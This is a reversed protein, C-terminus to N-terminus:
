QLRSLEWKQFINGSCLCEVACSILICPSVTLSHANMCISHASLTYLCASNQMHLGQLCLTCAHICQICIHIRQICIHLCQICMSMAYTFVNCPCVIVCHAWTQMHICVIHMYICVSVTCAHTTTHSHLCKTCVNLCWTYTYQSFNYICTYVYCQFIYM